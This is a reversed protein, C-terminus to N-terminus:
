TWLWSNDVELDMRRSKLGQDKKRQEARNMLVMVERRKM